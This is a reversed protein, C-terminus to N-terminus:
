PVATSAKGPYYISDLQAQLSTGTSKLQAVLLDMANYQALLNAQVSALHQNLATTATAVNTLGQQLTTNEAALVGGPKTYQDLVASLKTAIGDTGSFLQAVAAFNNTFAANVTTSNASLTGDAAAVIGLGALTNFPTGAPLKVQSGIAENIQNLLNSLLSDGLLPGATGTSANYGSLAAASQQLTNYSTILTQVATRAGSQDGSVVLSTTVGTATAATLNLTVGTLLGTVVNSASNYSNGDLTVIADQAGQLQTLKTNSNAPDYVLNALGGDGGSQTVTVANAAGTTAGSLVLRVGDNATVLTATVGSGAAAANIASAIGSLTNNTSDIVVNFPKTGVSITLTGTGVVTTSSAVPGSALKSGTALQTVGLSYTGASATADTTASAITKDAVSALTGEFQQATSLSALAAQVGSIAAQLQGYASIQTQLTTKQATLLKTQGAGEAAVLQQVISNIDLGSGLGTSTITGQTGLDTLATQGISSPTSAATTSAPTSSLISSM